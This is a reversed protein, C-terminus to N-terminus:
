RGFSIFCFFFCVYIFDVYKLFITATTIEGKTTLTTNFTAHFYVPLPSLKSFLHICPSSDCLLSQYDGSLTSCGALPLPFDGVPLSRYVEPSRNLARFMNLSFVICTVGVGFAFILEIVVLVVIADYGIPSRAQVVAITLLVALYQLAPKYQITM